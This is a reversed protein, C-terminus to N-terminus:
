IIRRLYSKFSNYDYGLIKIEGSTPYILNSILKLLTSKGAGNRGVVGYISGRRINISVNNVAKQKRYQKVLAKTQVIYESMVLGGNIELKNEM